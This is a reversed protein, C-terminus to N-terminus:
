RTNFPGRATDLVDTEELHTEELHTGQHGDLLSNDGGPCSLCSVSSCCFYLCKIGKWTLVSPGPVSWSTDSCSPVNVTHGNLILARTSQKRRTRFSSARGDQSIDSELVRDALVVTSQGREGTEKTKVHWQREAAATAFSCGSLCGSGESCPTLQCRSRQGLGRAM